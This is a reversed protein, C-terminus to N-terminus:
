VRDCGCPWDASTKSCGTSTVSAKTTRTRSPEASVTGIREQSSSSDPCRPLSQTAIAISPNSRPVFPTRKSISAQNMGCGSEAREFLPDPDDPLHPSIGGQKERGLRFRFASPPLALVALPDIRCHEFGQRYL